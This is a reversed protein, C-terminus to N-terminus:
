PPVEAKSDILLKEMKDIRDRCENLERRLADKEQDQHYHLHQQIQRNINCQGRCGPNGCSSCVLVCPAIAGPRLNHYQRYDMMNSVTPPLVFVLNLDKIHHLLTEKEIKECRSKGREEKKALYTFITRRDANSVLRRGM